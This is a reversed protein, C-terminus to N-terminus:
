AGMRDLVASKAQLKQARALIEAILEPTLIRCRRESPKEAIWADLATKLSDLTDM